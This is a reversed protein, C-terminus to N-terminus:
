RRSRRSRRNAKAKRNRRPNKKKAGGKLSRLLKPGYLVAGLLALGMVWPKAAYAKVTDVIGDFGEEMEEMEEEDAVNGPAFTFSGAQPGLGPLLPMNNGIPDLGRVRPDPDISRTFIRPDIDRTLIRPDLSRTPGPLEGPMPSYAPPSFQPLSPQAPPAPRPGARRVGRFFGRPVMRLLSPPLIRRKAEEEAADADVGVGTLQQIMAQIAATQAATLAGSAAPAAPAKTKAKKAADRKAKAEDRKAKRYKSELSRLETVAKTVNLEAQKRGYTFLKEKWVKNRLGVIKKKLSEIKAKYDDSAAGFAGFAGFDGYFGYAGFM